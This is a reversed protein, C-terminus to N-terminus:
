QVVKRVSEILKVLLVLALSIFGISIAYLVPALPVQITSSVLSTDAMTRAYDWLFWAAAMWLVLSAANTLSDIIGQIRAPMRDVLFEVAIHANRYACYPVAFGISLASLIGVLDITGIIPYNFVGRLLVNGVVLIMLAALCLGAIRDLTATIKEVVVAFFEM